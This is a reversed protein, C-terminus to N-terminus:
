RAADRLSTVERKRLMKSPSPYSVFPLPNLLIKVDTEYIKSLNPYEWFIKKVTALRAELLM